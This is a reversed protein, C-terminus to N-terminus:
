EGDADVYDVNINLIQLMDVKLLVVAKQIDDYTTLLKILGDKVQLSFDDNLENISNEATSFQNYIDDSLLKSKNTINFILQSMFSYNPRDSKHCVIEVLVVDGQM